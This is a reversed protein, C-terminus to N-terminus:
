LHGQGWQERELQWDSPSAGSEIWLGGGDLSLYSSDHTSNHAIEASHSAVKVMSNKVVALMRSRRRLGGDEADGRRMEVCETAFEVSLLSTEAPSRRKEPRARTAEGLPRWRTPRLEDFIRCRLPWPERRATQPTHSVSFAMTIRAEGGFVGVREWCCCDRWDSCCKLLVFSDSV